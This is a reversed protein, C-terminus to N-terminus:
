IRIEATIVRIASLSSLSRERASMVSSAVNRHATIPNKRNSSGTSHWSDPSRLFLIASKTTLTKSYNVKRPPRSSCDEEVLLHPLASKLRPLVEHRGSCRAGHRDVAESTFTIPRHGAHPVSKQRLFSVPGASSMKECLRPPASRAQRTRRTQGRSQPRLPVPRASFPQPHAEAAHCIGWRVTEFHSKDDPVKRM